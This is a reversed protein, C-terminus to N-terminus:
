GALERAAKDLDVRGGAIMAAVYRHDYAAPGWLRYLFDNWHGPHKTYYRHHETCLPEGNWPKYRVGPHAGKPLCHAAEIRGGCLPFKGAAVCRGGNKARVM